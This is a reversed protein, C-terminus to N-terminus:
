IIVFLWLRSDIMVVALLALLSYVAFLFPRVSTSLDSLSGYLITWHCKSSWLSFSGGQNTLRTKCDSSVLIIFLMWSTLRVNLSTRRAQGRNSSSPASGQPLTWSWVSKLSALDVESNNTLFRANTHYFLFISRCTDAQPSSPSIVGVNAPM